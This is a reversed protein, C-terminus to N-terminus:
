KINFYLKIFYNIADCMVCDKQRIFVAYFSTGFICLFSEILIKLLFNIILLPHYLLEEVRLLLINKIFLKCM